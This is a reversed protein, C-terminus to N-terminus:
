ALEWQYIFGLRTQGNLRTVLEFAPDIPTPGNVKFKTGDPCKGWVQVLSQPPKPPQATEIDILYCDPKGWGMQVSTEVKSAEVEKGDIKVKYRYTPTAFWPISATPKSKEQAPALEPQIWRDLDDTAFRGLQDNAEQLTKNWLITPWIEGDDKSRCHIRWVIPETGPKLAPETGDPQLWHICMSGAGSFCYSLASKAEDFSKPTLSNDISGCANFRWHLRWLTEPPKPPDPIPPEPIPYIWWDYLDSSARAREVLSDIAFQKSDGHPGLQIGTRGDRRDRWKLLWKTENM